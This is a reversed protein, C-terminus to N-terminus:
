WNWTMFHNFAAYQDLAAQSMGWDAGGGTAATTGVSSDTSSQSSYVTSSDENANKMINALETPSMEHNASQQKVTQYQAVTYRNAIYAKGAIGDPIDLGANIMMSVEQGRHVGNNLMGTWYALGDADPAKGFVNQYIKTVFDSNSLSDPYIAKVVDLSFIADSVQSFTKGSAIQQSWYEFGGKDPARLFAALYLKILELQESSYEVPTDGKATPTQTTPDTSAPPTKDIVNLTYTGMGGEAGGHLVYVTGTKSATFVIRADKSTGSVDNNDTNAILQSSDDLVCLIVPDVLTGQKTSLGQMDIQYTHGAVVKVAEAYPQGSVSVIGNLRVAGTTSPYLTGIMKVTNQQTSRPTTDILDLTYTGTSGAHGGLFIDYTGTTNVTINLQSDKNTASIDDSSINSILQGSSNLIGYLYPDGLTGGGSGAGHLNIQYSHGALLKAAWLVPPTGYDNLINVSGTVSQGSAITGAVTTHALDVSYTGTKQLTSTVDATPMYDTVNLTYNGLFGEQTNQHLEVYITGSKSATYIATSGIVTVSSSPLAVGTSDYLWWDLQGTATGSTGVNVAYTDGAVVSVAWVDDKNGLTDIRGSASGTSGRPITVAGAGTLNIGGPTKDSLSLTYTGTKTSYGGVFIDYVGTKSAVFTVQSDKSTSSVDDNSTGAVLNGSSDLVGYLYPDNLANSGSGRLNIQYTHGAQLNAGWLIPAVGYDNLVNVSGTVSQGASINGALTYKTLDLSYSTANRVTSSVTYAPTYGTVNVSYGGTFPNLADSYADVYYTGNSAPTYAFISGSVLISSAAINKYSPDLLWGVLQGKYGTQTKLEFTYTNGAILNVAWLDSTDSPYTLTGTGTVTRGVYPQIITASYPDVTTGTYQEVTTGTYQQVTSGTYQEIAM